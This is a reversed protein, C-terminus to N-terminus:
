LMIKYHFIYHEVAIIATNGGDGITKGKKLSLTLGGRGGICVCVCVCVGFSFIPWAQIYTLSIEKGFNGTTYHTSQLTFINDQCHHQGHEPIKLAQQRCLTLSKEKTVEGKLRESSQGTIITNFFM